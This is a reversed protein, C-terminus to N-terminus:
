TNFNLNTNFKINKGKMMLVDVRCDGEMSIQASQINVTWSLHTLIHMRCEQIIHLVGVEGM